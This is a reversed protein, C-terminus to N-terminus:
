SVRAELRGYIGVLTRVRDARRTDLAGPRLRWNWNDVTLGPTNMRAEAGLALVDQATIVARDATSALAARILDWVIDHGDVGFYTRVRHRVQDGAERWWGLATNNDHTGIYAVARRRHNHPLYGNHPDGDFAFQLVEMGPLQASAMLARVDADITGLDEAVVPLPGLAAGLADFLAQGPGPRWAGARADEASTPIAWYASFARFHDIRVLDCLALARQLRLTWWAFGEREHAAWDYLPNGWRQGTASFADPPVGSVETPMRDDGLAFRDPGAWTDVSDGGVYIPVDGFLQVGREAARRRLDRWQHDFLFEVAVGRRIREGHRQRSTALARSHRDRIAVPWTWWPAGRRDVQEAAFHAAEAAWPNDRQFAQFAPQLRHDSADCLAGAAKWLRPGKFALAAVYDVRDRNPAGSLDSRELLGEVVLAHLDILLPNGSLASWPSYPSGDPGVPGLPLLQWLGLGARAMWDLLRTAEGGVDGIGHGGPLCTPHLLLGAQRATRPM